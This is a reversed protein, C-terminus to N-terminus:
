GGCLMFDMSRDYDPRRITMNRTTNFGFVSGAVTM